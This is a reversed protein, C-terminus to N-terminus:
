SFLIVFTSFFPKLYVLFGVAALIVCAGITGVWIFFKKDSLKFFHNLVCFIAFVLISGITIFLCPKVLQPSYSIEIENEASEIEVVM